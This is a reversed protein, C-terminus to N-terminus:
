SVLDIIQEYFNIHTPHTKEKLEDFTFWKYNDIEPYDCNDAINSFCEEPNIDPYYLGFAVVIKRKNQRTTGLPILKNLVDGDDFQLGSEEKFERLAAEEFTENGEVGGKLYAWYDRWEWGVGGPHGVFFEVEGKSNRRFPIIGASYEM